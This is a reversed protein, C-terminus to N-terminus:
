ADEDPTYSPDYLRMDYLSGKPNAPLPLVEMPTPQIPEPPDPPGDTTETTGEETAGEEATGEEATGEETTGEETTDETTGEQANRDGGPETIEEDYTSGKPNGPPPLLEEGGGVASGCGVLMSGATLAASKLLLRARARPPSEPADTDTPDDSM